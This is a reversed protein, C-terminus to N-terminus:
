ATMAASGAITMKKEQISLKRMKGGKL